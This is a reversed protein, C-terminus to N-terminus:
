GSLPRFDVLNDFVDRGYVPGPPASSEGVAEEFDGVAERGVHEFLHCYTDDIVPVLAYGLLIIPLLKDKM